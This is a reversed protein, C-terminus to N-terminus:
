QKLVIEKKKRIIMYMIGFIILLVVSLPELLSEAFEAYGTVELTHYLGHIIVFGSLLCTLLKMYGDLRICLYIPIVAAGFVLVANIVNLVIENM